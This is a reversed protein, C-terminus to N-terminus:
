EPIIDDELEEEIEKEIKEPKPGFIVGQNTNYTTREKKKPETERLFRAGRKASYPLRRETAKIMDARGSHAYLTVWDEPFPMFYPRADDEIKVEEPKVFRVPARMANFLQEQIRKRKEDTM